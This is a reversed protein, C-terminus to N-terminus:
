LIGTPNHCNRHVSCSLIGGHMTRRTTRRMGHAVAACVHCNSRCTDRNCHGCVRRHIVRDLCPTSFTVRPTRCGTGVTRAHARSFRRRAVCKRSLVQSLMIGHQTITHSVSCLPGFASPTGPLKTVITVRGLALRSIAGNFCIRTTTNINCTHCNLCVGGLCLRLVRSGALLRRVHVTLFIRGVGHVLAHRPDLFFGETLRRAVADTKRSTRNSFLTIDTTHFVKIPSINRRRCFHDSRATVFTGIVRPPVRSLAIPVHHGRNCRTVLRNSTDCVRVPVRLHISGLATISPLRPRVCHCLNCVSNTKLLVYYITLVLFCGM